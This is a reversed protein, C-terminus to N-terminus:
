LHHKGYLFHTIGYELYFRADIVDGAFCHMVGDVTKFNEEQFFWEMERQASRNHIVVPMHQKEALRLMKGFM